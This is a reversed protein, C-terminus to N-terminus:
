IRFHSLATDKMCNLSWDSIRDTVQYSSVEVTEPDLTEGEKALSRGILANTLHSKGVGTKGCLLITAHKGGSSIYERMEYEFNPLGKILWMAERPLTDLNVDLTGGEAM